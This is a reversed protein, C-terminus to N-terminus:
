TFAEEAQVSPGTQQAMLRSIPQNNSLRALLYALRLTLPTYYTRALSM